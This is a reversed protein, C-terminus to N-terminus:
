QLFDFASPQALDRLIKLRAPTLEIQRVEEESLLNSIPIQEKWVKDLADALAIANKGDTAGMKNAYSIEEDLTKRFEEHAAELEAILKEVKSIQFPTAFKTNSLTTVTDAIAERNKFIGYNM